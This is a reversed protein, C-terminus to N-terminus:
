YKVPIPGTPHVRKGTKLDFYAGIPLEDLKDRIPLLSKKGSWTLVEGRMDSVVVLNAVYKKGYHNAELTFEMPFNTWQGKMEFARKNEQSLVFSASRKDIIYYKDRDLFQQGIAYYHVTLEHNYTKASLQKVQAGCRIKEQTVTPNKPFYDSSPVTWSETKYYFEADVKPPHLLSIYDQDEDSLTNLPIKIEKGDETKVVVEDSLTISVYEAELTQGSVTSWPRMEAHSGWCVMVLAIGISIRSM